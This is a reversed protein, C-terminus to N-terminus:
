LETPPIKLKQGVKLPAKPDSIGNLTAIDEVKVIFLSAITDLTDGDQVTYDLPAYQSEPKAQAAPAAAVPVPAPMPAVAPAPAPAPAAVPAPAPPPPAVPAPAAPKPAEVVPKTAVPKAPAASAGPIVLKQNVLIKDGSLKNAERLESVRVGHKVAIKSLSDGPQVTYTSGGAPVVARPAPAAPREVKQAAAAPAKAYDPLALVQGVRIRNPDKINNLEALERSSVGLRNAIKSLSDGKQITYSKGDTPVMMSPAPEVPVPPQFTPRPVPTVATDQRPPMVPAPPPEVPGVARRTGCGQICLVSGIALVHILVVTAILVPTRM